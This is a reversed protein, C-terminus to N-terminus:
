LPVGDRQAVQEITRENNKKIIVDIKQEGLFEYLKAIFRIKRWEADEYQNVPCLYLDIDGGRKTDDIRSGFLYITGEGFTEHFAQKILQREEETLRM